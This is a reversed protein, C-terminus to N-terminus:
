LFTQKEKTTKTLNVHLAAIFLKTYGNKCVIVKIESLNVWLTPNDPLHM